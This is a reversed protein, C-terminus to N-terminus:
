RSGVPFCPAVWQAPTDVIARTVSRGHFGSVLTPMWDIASFYGYYTTGRAREPVAAARAHRDCRLPSLPLITICCVDDRCGPVEPLLPSHVLAHTRIGGEFYYGKIGRLPWNSGASAPVAGNDSRPPSRHPPPATNWGDGFVAIVEM